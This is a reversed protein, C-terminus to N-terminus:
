QSMLEFTTEGTWLSHVALRIFADVDDVPDSGPNLTIQNQNIITAWDTRSINRDFKWLIPAFADGPGRQDAPELEVYTFGGATTFAKTYTGLFYTYEPMNFEQRELSANRQLIIDYHCRNNSQPTIFEYVEYEWNRATSAGNNTWCFYHFFDNKRTGAANLLDDYLTYGLMCMFETEARRDFLRDTDCDYITDLIIDTENTTFADNDDGYIMADGDPIMGILVENPLNKDIIENTINKIDRITILPTSTYFFDVEEIRVFWNGGSEEFAMGLNAFSSCAAFFELFNFVSLGAKMQAWAGGTNTSFNSGVRQMSNVIRLENLGYAYAQQTVATATGTGFTFSVITVPFYITCDFREVPGVTSRAVLAIEAERRSPVAKNSLTLTREWDVFFTAAVGNSQCSYIHTHGFMDTLTLVATETNAPITTFEIRIIQETYTDSFLDSVLALKGNSAQDILQDFAWFVKKLFFGNIPAAANCNNIGPFSAFSGTVAEWQTTALTGSLGIDYDTGINSMFIANGDNQEIPASATCNTVDFVVDRIIVVGETETAFASFRSCRSEILIDVTDCLGVAKATVLADYGTGTWEIVTSYKIFLGNIREDREYRIKIERWNVPHDVIVTDMKFRFESM